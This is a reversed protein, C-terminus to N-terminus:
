KLRVFRFSSQCSRSVAPFLNTDADEPIALVLRMLGPAPGPDFDSL